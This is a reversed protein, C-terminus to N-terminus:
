PNEDWVVLRFWLQNAQMPWALTCNELLVGEADPVGHHREFEAPSFFDELTLWTSGAGLKEAVQVQIDLDLALTNRCHSLTLAEGDVLWTLPLGQDPAKPASGLAYEILNVRQDGDPDSLKGSISPDGLEAASFQTACWLGYTTPAKTKVKLSYDRNAEQGSADVLRITFGYDGARPSSGHLLGADTLQLWEPLPNGGPVSWTYPPEGGAGVLAVSYPIAQAAHPLALVTITPFDWRRAASLFSNGQNDRLVFTVNRLESWSISTPLKKSRPELPLGDQHFFQGADGDLRLTISEFYVPAAILNGELDEYDWNVTNFKGGTVTIRPRVLVQRLQVNPDPKEYALELSQYKVLYVGGSPYPPLLRSPSFFLRTTPGLYDWYGASVVNEIASGPPGVFVVSEPRPNSDDVTFFLSFRRPIPEFYTPSVLGAATVPLVGPEHATEFRLLASQPWPSAGLTKLTTSTEALYYAYGGVSSDETESRDVIRIFRIAVDHHRGAEFTQAPLILSTTKGHLAGPEGAFGSSYVLGFATRIEVHILDNTTGGQFAGWALTFEAGSDVAQAAAHNTLRPANPLAASKLLLALEWDGGGETEACVRYPATGHSPFASNLASQSTFSRGFILGSGERELGWATGDPESFSGTLASGAEGERTLVVFEYPEDGALAPALASTQQYQVSKGLAVLTRGAAIGSMPLTTLLVFVVVKM